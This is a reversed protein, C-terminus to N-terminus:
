SSKHKIIGITVNSNNVLKATSSHRWGYYGLLRWIFFANLDMFNSYFGSFGLSIGHLLWWLVHGIHEVVIWIYIHWTMDQLTGFWKIVMWDGNLTVMWEGTWWWETVLPDGHIEGKLWWKVVMWDRNLWWEIVMEGCKWCLDILM